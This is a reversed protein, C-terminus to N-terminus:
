FRSRVGVYFQRGVLHNQPGNINSTSGTNFNSPLFPGLNDFLNTIGAYVSTRHDEGFRYRAYINSVFQDDAKYYYPDDPELDLDDVGGSEYRLTYSAYFDGKSWSLRARAEHTPNYMSGNSDEREPKGNEGIFEYEDALSRSYRLDLGFEGPVSPLEFDWLVSVDVGESLLENLNEQRNIVEVVRGDSLDRTIVDCFRNNPFNPSGYCLDVTTQTSVSGIADEVRINYYDVIIILDDAFSPAWVAGITYTDATEETLTNNGANPAFVSGDFEFPEGANEPDAFYAQIGPQSLCNAAIVAPDFDTGAPPTIGSGDPM